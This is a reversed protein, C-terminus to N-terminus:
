GSGIVHIFFIDLRWTEDIYSLHFLSREKMFGEISLAAIWWDEYLRGVDILNVTIRRM